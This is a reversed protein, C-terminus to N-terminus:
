AFTITLLNKRCKEEESMEQLSSRKLMELIASVKHKNSLIFDMLRHDIIEPIKCNVAFFVDFNRFYNYSKAYDVIRTIKKQLKKHYFSYHFQANPRQNSAFTRYDREKCLDLNKYYNSITSIINTNIYHHIKSELLDIFLHFIHVSVIM